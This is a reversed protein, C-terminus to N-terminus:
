LPPLTPATVLSAAPPPGSPDVTDTSLLKNLFKVSLIPLINLVTLFIGLPDPQPLPPNPPNPTGGVPVFGLLSGFRLLFLLLGPWFEMNANLM